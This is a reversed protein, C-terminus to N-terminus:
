KTKNYFNTALQTNTQYNNTLDTNISNINNFTQLQKTQLIAIDDVNTQIATDHATDKTLLPAIAKDLDTQTIGGAGVLSNDVYTQTAYTEGIESLGTSSGLYIKDAYITSMNNISAM